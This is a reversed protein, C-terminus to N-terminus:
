SHYLPDLFQQVGCGENGKLNFGTVSIFVENGRRIMGGDRGLKAAHHNEIILLPLNSQRTKM